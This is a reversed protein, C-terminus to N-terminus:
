RQRALNATLAAHRALSADLRESQWSSSFHHESLPSSHGAASPSVHQQYAPAFSSSGVAAALSGPWGTLLPASTGLSSFSSVSTSAEPPPLPSNLPSRQVGPSCPSPSECSLSSYPRVLQLNLPPVGSRGVQMQQQQQWQTQQAQQQQQDQQQSAPGRSLQQAASWQAPDCPEANGHQLMGACPLEPSMAAPTAAQPTAFGEDEEEDLLMTNVASGRTPSCGGSTSGLYNTPRATGGDLAAHEGFASALRSPPHGAWNAPRLRGCGPLPRMPPAIRVKALELQLQKATEAVSHSGASQTSAIPPPLVQPQSSSRVLGETLPVLQGDAVQVAAAAAASSAAASMVPAPSSPRWAEETQVARCNLAAEAAPCCAQVAADCLREQRQLQEQVLESLAIRTEQLQQHAEALQAQLVGVQNEHREVAAQVAAAVQAQAAAASSQEQQSVAAAHEQAVVAAEARLQQVQLELSATQAVAQQLEARLREVEVAPVM